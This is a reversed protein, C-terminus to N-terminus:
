SILRYEIFLVWLVYLASQDRHGASNSIFKLVIKTGFICILFKFLFILYICFRLSAYPLSTNKKSKMRIQHNWFVIGPLKSHTVHFSVIEDAKFICWPTGCPITKPGKKKINKILPSIATTLWLSVFIKVSSVTISMQPPLRSYIIFSILISRWLM